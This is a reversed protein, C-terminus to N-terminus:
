LLDILGHSGVAAAVPTLWVNSSKSLEHRMAFEKVEDQNM